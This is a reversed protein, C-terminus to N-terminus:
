PVNNKSAIGKISFTSEIKSERAVKASELQTSTSISSAATSTVLSEMYENHDKYSLLLDQLLEM